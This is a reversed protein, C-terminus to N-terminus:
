CLIKLIKPVSGMRTWSPYDGTSYNISMYSIIPLLHAIALDTLGDDPM